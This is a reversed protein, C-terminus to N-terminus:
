RPPRTRCCTPRVRTPRPRRRKGPESADTDAERKARGAVEAFQAFAPWRRGGAAEGAGRAHRQDAGRDRPLHRGAPLAGRRHRDRAQQISRVPAGGLRAAVRARRAGGRDPRASASGSGFVDDEDAAASRCASCACGLARSSIRRPEPELPLVGQPSAELAYVVFDDKLSAGPENFPRGPATLLGNSTAVTRTGRGLTFEARKAEVLDTLEFAHATGVAAVGPPSAIRLFFVLGQAHSEDGIKLHPRAVSPLEAASHAVGALLPIALFALLLRRLM